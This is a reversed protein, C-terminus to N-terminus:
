SDFLTYRRRHWVLSNTTQSSFASQRLEALVLAHDEVTEVHKVVGKLVCLSAEALESKNGPYILSNTAYTKALSDRGRALCYVTVVAGEGSFVTFFTSTHLINFCFLHQAHDSIVLSTATIGYLSGDAAVTSIVCVTSPLESFAEKTQEIVPRYMFDDRMVSEQLAVRRPAGNVVAIISAAGGQFAGVVRAVVLAVGDDFAFVETIELAFQLSDYQPRAAASGDGSMYAFRLAHASEDRLEAEAAFTPLTDALSRPIIFSVKPVPHMSCPTLADVDVFGSSWTLRGPARVIAGQIRALEEASTPVYPVDMHAPLVDSAASLESGTRNAVGSFHKTRFLVDNGNRGRGMVCHGLLRGPMRAAVRELFANADKPTNFTMAATALGDAVACSSALVSVSAVSRMSAKMATMGELRMIHHYGYKQIQFYDGSTALSLGGVSDSPLPPHEGDRELNVLYGIDSEGLVKDLSQNKWHEFLRPLPPPVMVATRWPRGSPHRGVACIDGAWDVYFDSYDARRLAQAVLDICFGKSVGDLDIITNANVKSVTRGKRLVRKRWGMAFRYRSVENPLPPRGLEALAELFALKLVGVTPDFRGETVECLEDVINFVAAMTDSIEIPKEPKLNNMETLESTESWGNVVSHILDFVDHVIKRVYGEREPIDTVIVTYRLTMVVDSVALVGHKPDFGLPPALSDDMPHCPGPIAPAEHTAQEYQLLPRSRGTLLGHFAPANTHTDVLSAVAKTDYLKEADAVPVPKSSRPRAPPAPKAPNNPLAEEEEKSEVCGM